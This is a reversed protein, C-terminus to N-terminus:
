NNSKKTKSIKCQAAMRWLGNQTQVYKVKSNGTKNKYRHCQIMEVRKTTEDQLNLCM